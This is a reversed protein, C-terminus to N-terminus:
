TRGGRRTWSPWVWRDDRLAGRDVFKQRERRWEVLGDEARDLVHGLGYAEPDRCIPCTGGLPGAKDLDQIHEVADSYPDGDDDDFWLDGEDDMEVRYGALQLAYTLAKVLPYRQMQRRGQPNSIASAFLADTPPTSQEDRTATGAESSSNCISCSDSSDSISFDDQLAGNGCRTRTITGDNSWTIHFDAADVYIEEPKEASETGVKETLSHTSADGWANAIDLATFEFTRERYQNIATWSFNYYTLLPSWSAGHWLLHAAEIVTSGLKWSNANRAASNIHCDDQDQYKFWFNAWPRHKRDDFSSRNEDNDAAANQTTDNFFIWHSLDEFHCGISLISEHRSELFSAKLGYEHLIAATEVEHAMRPMMLGRFYVKAIIPTLSKMDTKLVEISFIVDIASGLTVACYLIQNLPFIEQEDSNPYVLGLSSMLALELLGAHNADDVDYISARGEDLMTKVGEFDLKDCLEFIPSDAPRINAISIRCGTTAISAWAQTFQRLGMEFSLVRENLFYFRMRLSVRLNRHYRNSKLFLRGTRRPGDKEASPTSGFTWSSSYLSELGPDYLTLLNEQCDHDSDTTKESARSYSRPGTTSTELPTVSKQYIDPSFQMGLEGKILTKSGSESANMFCQTLETRTQELLVTQREAAADISLQLERTQFELAPLMAASSVRLALLSNQQVTALRLSVISLVQDLTENVDKLDRMVRGSKAKDFMAWQMKTGRTRSRVGSYAGGISTLLQLYQQLQDLLIDRHIEPLLDDTAISSLDNGIKQVHEIRFKLMEVKMALDKLEKPAGRYSRIIQSAARSCKVCVDVLQIVSATAGLAELGSM